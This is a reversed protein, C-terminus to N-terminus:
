LFDMENAKPINAMTLYPRLVTGNHPTLRTSPLDLLSRVLQAPFNAGATVSGGVSGSFRPGADIVRPTRGGLLIIDLDCAGDVGFASVVRSSYKLVRKDQDIKHGTSTPWLPNRLQRIRACVDLAVGKKAIVDVDYVPGSFYPTAIFGELAMNATELAKLTADLPGTGCFRNPLLMEFDDRAGDLICVGRSGSSSRPKLVVKQEPYGLSALARGLSTKGDIRHFSGVDIGAAELTHLMRFKDVMMPVVDPNGVSCRVGIKEFEKHEKAIIETEADSLSLLVNAKTEVLLARMAHSWDAPAERANPIVQFHDCLLRGHAQPDADTGVLICQFDGATRLGDLIDFILRGGVCTTVVTFVQQEGSEAM